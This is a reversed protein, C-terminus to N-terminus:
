IVEFALSILEDDLRRRFEEILSGNVLAWRYILVMFLVVINLLCESRVIIRCSTVKKLKKYSNIFFVTSRFSM